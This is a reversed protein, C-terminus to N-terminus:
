WVIRHHKRSEAVCRDIDRLAIQLGLMIQLVEFVYCVVEKCNLSYKSSKNEKRFTPFKM